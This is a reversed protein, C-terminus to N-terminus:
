QLPAPQLAGGAPTAIGNRFTAWGTLRHIRGLPDAVLDGTAGGLYDDPHGLLWDIYPLLAFADMGFAFLRGAMGDATELWAGVRDRDPLGSVPGLLWPVESFEVGDLDRDMASNRTGAWVHSTAFVRVGPNSLRLQPVLLRAQQPRMSLFVGADPDRALGAAATAIAPRFDVEQDGIGTDGEVRGGGEEFRTRFAEAARRAWDAGARLIAARGLGQDLMRQAVQAGEAEPLLGFEASGPPPLEGGDAHNLALVPVEPSGAFLAGVAERALPGVVREAGWDLAARYAVWMDEVSRGSDIIRIEPRREAPSAAWALLFGDRVAESASAYEASLPLLLAVRAPMHHGQPQWGGESGPHLTGVRQSPQPVHRALKGAQQLARELWPRLPDHPTLTDLAAQLRAPETNELLPPILRRNQEQDAGALWRDLEVRTRAAALGDGLAASARARLEMARLWLADPFRGDEHLLALTREPQGHFLAVEAEVLELRPQEGVPLRRRPLDALVAGAADLDGADRLVEAARLRWHAAAEGRSSDARALYADAAARLDGDAELREAVGAVEATPADFHPVPLSACGALALLALCLVALARPCPRPCAFDPKRM